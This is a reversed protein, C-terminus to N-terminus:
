DKTDIYKEKKSSCSGAPYEGYLMKNKSYLILITDPLAM